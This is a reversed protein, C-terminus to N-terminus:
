KRAQQNTIVWSIWEFQKSSLGEKKMEVFSVLADVNDFSISYYGPSHAGHGILSMKGNNEFGIILDHNEYLVSEAKRTIKGYEALNRDQYYQFGILLVLFLAAMGLGITFKASTQANFLDRLSWSIKSRVAANIAGQPALMAEVVKGTYKEIDAVAESDSPDVMALKLTNHGGTALPLVNYKVCLYRPLIGLVDASFDSEIDAISIDLQRALLTQLDKEAVLGMRVLLYGLRRNGGVQLRLAEHLNEPSIMQAELLLDGLRKKQQM